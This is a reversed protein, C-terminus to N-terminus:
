AIPKPIHPDLAVLHGVLDNQATYFVAHGYALAVPVAIVSPLLSVMSCRACCKLHNHLPARHQGRHTATAIDAAHPDCDDADLAALHGQAVAVPIESPEIEASAMVGNFVLALAILWIGLRHM